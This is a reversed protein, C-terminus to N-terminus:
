GAIIAEEISREARPTVFAASDYYTQFESIEGEDNLRLISVGRYEIPHGDKLEGKSRWELIATDDTTSTHWFESHIERFQTLYREWFDRAGQTGRLDHAAGLNGLLADEAFFEILTDVNRSLEMQLLAKEFREAVDRIETAM